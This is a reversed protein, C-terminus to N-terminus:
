SQWSFSPTINKTRWRLWFGKIQDPTLVKIREGKKEEGQGRPREAEKLPNHDLYKHRVAYSLIQGLTVLIKRLTGLSMGALQRATIFQEITAVTIRNIKM